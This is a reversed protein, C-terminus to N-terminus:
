RRAGRRCLMPRPAPSSHARGAMPAPSRRGYVADTVASRIMGSPPSPSTPFFMVTELEPVLPDDDVGPERERAVLVEADIEHQRVERVEDVLVHPRDDQCVTVLVVDAPQGVHEALDLDLRTTPVRSVRASTLDFSSSCPRPAVVSSPSTSGPAGGISIPGNRSSNMRIAWEIGSEIATTMSVGAPRTRCVPVPLEVVRRDVPELGVDAREGLEPVAADVQEEAVGRVGLPGPHGAGLPEDALREPLQDRQARSADEDGREGRVDVADLLGGLHRDGVPAPDRDDSAGHPLVHVDRPVEAVDVERVVGDDRRLLRHVQRGVADEDEAGTALALRHGRQRADGVAVVRVDRDLPTVRHDDRRLRDRPVLEADVVRDVPERLVAGLDEVLLDRRHVDRPVRAGLLQAREEREHPRSGDHRDVALVAHEGGVGLERAVRADRVLPDHDGLVPRDDLQGRVAHADGVADLGAHGEDVPEADAVDLVDREAVPAAQRLVADEDDDRGHGDVLAAVDRRRLQDGAPHPLVLVEDVLEAVLGLRM